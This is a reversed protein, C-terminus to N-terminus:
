RGRYLDRFMVGMSEVSIMGNKAMSDFKEGILKMADAKSVMGNKDAMKMYAQKNFQADMMQDSQAHAIFPSTLALSAVVLALTRKIEM